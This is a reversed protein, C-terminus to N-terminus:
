APLRPPREPGDTVFAPVGAQPALALAGQTLPPPPLKVPMAPLAAAACCAACTVCGHPGAAADDHGDPLGADLAAPHDSSMEAHGHLPAGPPHAHGDPHHAHGHAAPAEDAPSALTALPSGGCWLMTAAAVGQWPLAGALLCTIILRLLRSM